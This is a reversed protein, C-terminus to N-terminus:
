TRTGDVKVVLQKLRYEPINQPWLKVIGREEKMDEVTVWDAYEMWPLYEPGALLRRNGYEVWAHNQGLPSDPHHGSIIVSKRGQKRLLERMAYALDVCNGKMGLIHDFERRTPVEPTFLRKLWNFM